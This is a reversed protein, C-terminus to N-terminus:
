LYVCLLLLMYCLIKMHELKVTLIGFPFLGHESKETSSLIVFPLPPWQVVARVLPNCQVLFEQVLTSHVSWPWGVASGPCGSVAVHWPVDVMGQFLVAWLWLSALSCYVRVATNMPPCRALRLVGYSTRCGVFPVRVNLDLRNGPAQMTSCLTPSSSAIDANKTPAETLLGSPMKRIATM